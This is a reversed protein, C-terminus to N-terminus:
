NGTRDLNVEGVALVVEGGVLHVAVEGDVAVATVNGEGLDFASDLLVAFNQAIHVNLVDAPRDGQVGRDSVQFQGRQGAIEGEVGVIQADGLGFPRHTDGGM